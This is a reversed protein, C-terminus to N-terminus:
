KVAEEVEVALNRGMREIDAEGEEENARSNLVEAHPYLYRITREISGMAYSNAGLGHVLM